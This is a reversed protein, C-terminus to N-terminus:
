VQAALRAAQDRADRLLDVTKIENMVFCTHVQRADPWGVIPEGHLRNFAPPDRVRIRPCDDVEGAVVLLRVFWARRPALSM